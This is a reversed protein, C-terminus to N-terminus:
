TEFLVLIVVWNVAGRVGASAGAVGGLVGVSSYRFARDSGAQVLGRGVFCGLM